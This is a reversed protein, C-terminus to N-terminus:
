GLRALRDAEDLWENLSRIVDEKPPIGAPFLARILADRNVGDNSRAPPATRASRTRAVGTTRATAAAGRTPRKRTAARKKSQASAGAVGHARSRHAGLAAARTFS